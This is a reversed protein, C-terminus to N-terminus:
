MDHQVGRTFPFQGPLEDHQKEVESSDVAAASRSRETDAVTYISQVEIGSDTYIKKEEM